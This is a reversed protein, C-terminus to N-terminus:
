RFAVDDFSVVQGGNPLVRNQDIPGLWWVPGPSPGFLPIDHSPQTVDGVSCTITIGAGGLAIDLTLTTWAGRTFTGCGFSNNVAGADATAKTYTFLGSSCTSANQDCTYYVNVANSGVPSQLNYALIVTSEADVGPEVRVRAQAAVPPLTAANILFAQPRPAAADTVLPLEFRAAYPASVAADSLTPETATVFFSSSWELSASAVHDFDFCAKADIDACGRSASAEVGGDDRITGDDLLPKGDDKGGDAPPSEPDSSFSSCAGLWGGLGGVCGIILSWRARRWRSSATLAM